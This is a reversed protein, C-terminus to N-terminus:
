KNEAAREAMKATQQRLARGGTLGAHALSKGCSAPTMM